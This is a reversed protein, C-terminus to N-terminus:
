RELAVTRVLVAQCALAGLGLCGAVVQDLPGTAGPLGAWALGSAEALLVFGLGLRFPDRVSAVPAAALVLLAVAAGVAPPSAAPAGLFDAAGTAAVWGAITAAIGALAEVPWGAPSGRVPTRSDALVLWAVYLGLLSASTRAGLAAASPLVDGGFPAVLLVVALGALSRRTDTAVLAIVAGAVVVAAAVAALLPM